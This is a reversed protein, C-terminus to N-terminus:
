SAACGRANRLEEDYRDADARSLEGTYTALGVLIFRSHRWVFRFHPRQGPAGCEVSDRRLSHCQVQFSGGAEMESALLDRALNLAEFRVMLAAQPPCWRQVRMVPSADVIVVGAAPDVADRWDKDLMARFEAPDLTHSPPPPTPAPPPEPPRPTSSTWCASLLALAAIRM